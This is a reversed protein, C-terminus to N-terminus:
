QSNLVFHFTNTFLHFFLYVYLVVNAQGSFLIGAFSFNGGLVVMTM